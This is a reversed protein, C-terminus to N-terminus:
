GHRIHEPIKRQKCYEVCEKNKTAPIFYKENLKFVKLNEINTNITTIYSQKKTIVTGQQLNELWEQKERKIYEDHLTVDTLEL